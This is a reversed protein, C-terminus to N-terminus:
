TGRRARTRRISFYTVLAFVVTVLRGLRSMLDHRRLFPQPSKTM